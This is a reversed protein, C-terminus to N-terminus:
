PIQNAHARADYTAEARLEQVVENRATVIINIVMFVQSMTQGRFMKSFADVSHCKDYIRKVLKQREIQVAM